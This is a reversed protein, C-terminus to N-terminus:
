IRKQVQIKLMIEEQKDIRNKYKKTNEIQLKMNLSTYKKKYIYFVFMPLFYKSKPEKLFSQPFVLESSAFSNFM